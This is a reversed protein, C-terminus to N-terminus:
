KQVEIKSIRQGRVHNKDLPAQDFVFPYSMSVLQGKKAKPFQIQALTRALCVDVSRKTRRTIRIDQARGQDNISWSLETKGKLRPHKELAQEFCVRFNDRQEFRKEFQVLM